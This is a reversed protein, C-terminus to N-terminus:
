RRRRAQASIPRAGRAAPWLVGRVPQRGRVPGRPGTTARCRRRRHGVSGHVTPANGGPRRGPQDQCPRRRRTAPPNRAPQPRGFRRLVCPLAAPASPSCGHGDCRGRGGRHRPADGRGRWRCCACSRRDHGAVEVGDRQARCPRRRRARSRASRTTSGSARSQSRPRPRRAPSGPEPTAHCRRRRPGTWGATMARGSDLDRGPPDGAPVVEEIGLQERGEPELGAELALDPAGRAGALGALALLGALQRCM